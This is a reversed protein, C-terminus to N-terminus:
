NTKTPLIVTVRSVKQALSIPKKKKTEDDSGDGTTAAAAATQNSDNSAATATANAATGQAMGSQGSTSGSISGNSLLSADVSGGSASIGGVGIITGSLSGGADASVTGQALATVNVNAVASVDINGRAFIVGNIDGSAKLIANQAIVGSSSADINRADSVSVPRGGAMDAATLPQGMGDRLQYGALVEVTADPSAVHNFALQVIGGKNANVNGNPTEVLINGVTPAPAPYAADRPGFTTALIGSGYTTPTTSYVKHTAPDVYYATLTVSGLGGTGANIDGNLSEVTVNGGDYAAIRSGNININKGAFVAVDGSTSFIGRAGSANVSFDASGVNINGGANVYISGGNLSAISSSYMDLDGSTTVSIDAGKDFLNALPYNNGARYFGVGLSQIGITTGLDINGASIDFKGGGGIAYAGSAPPNVGVPLGSQLNIADYRAQLAQVTASNLVSVTMTDPITQEPDLWLLNGKADVKQVTLNQLLSLLSALSKGQINQYTLIKTTPNYYFSTALTAASISTGGVTNNVARALVSLDPALAGSVQSLDVSSFASRNIIDGTVQIATTDAASLNMGQFRCNDMNGDVNVQAAEPVGLLVLSMDGSIDLTVPTESGLHIPTTAHDNLGFDGSSKYQTKGSDSVILNFVQPTGQVLDLNGVLSGGQTTNITLSGQPSPFLILSNPSGPTGLEVGGAGATVNLISPYIIPVATGNIKDLRPLASSSAGL